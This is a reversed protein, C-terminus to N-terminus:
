AFPELRKACAGRRYALWLIIATTLLSFFLALYPNVEIGPVHGALEAFIELIRYLMSIAKALLNSLVPLVLDLGLWVISLIMFLTTLPTIVLGAAIGVPRLTGFFWASICATAIFAGLSVSLPQLIFAPIKGLFVYNVANGIILLGALALYSLIFSISFGAQPTFILQILFAMCLLLFADKKLMGLVSSVGLLYM